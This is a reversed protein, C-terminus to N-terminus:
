PRPTRLGGRFIRAIRFRDLAICLSYEPFSAGHRLPQITMGQISGNQRLLRHKEAPERGRVKGADGVEELEVRFLYLAKWFDAGGSSM